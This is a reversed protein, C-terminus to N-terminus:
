EQTERPRGSGRFCSLMTARSRRGQTGKQSGQTGQLTEPAVNVEFTVPVLM